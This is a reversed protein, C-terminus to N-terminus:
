CVECVVISDESEFMVKALVYVPRLYYDGAWEDDLNEQNAVIYDNLLRKATQPEIRQSDLGRIGDFAGFHEIRGILEREYAYGYFLEEEYRSEIEDRTIDHESGDAFHFTEVDPEWSNMSISTPRQGYLEEGLAFMDITKRRLMAYVGQESIWEPVSSDARVWPTDYDLEDLDIIGDDVAIHPSEIRYFYVDASM